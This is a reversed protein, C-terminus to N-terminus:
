RQTAAQKQLNKKIVQGGKMVFVTNELANIDTLPDGAVAIIDAYAGPKIAGILESFRLMEAANITATRIKELPSMGSATYARFSLLSIQGRTMGPIRYYVDAGFAVPVGAKVARRLRERNSEVLSVFGKKTQERQEPTGQDSIAYAELPGDTPVLFIRKEAMLKLVEDTVNYAHEISDVGAEVAIRVAADEIAHAAVPRKARHAEEVIVKVEELSLMRGQEDVIVKVWVAGDYIAQRTARRSEEVGTVVVYEQEVIKQVEPTLRGLQGGIPALARTSVVMRPGVVWGAVIADRLARDGNVGSNGLDRVTTFGAELMQRGLMAGLLARKATSMRSVTALMNASDDGVDEDFDMLLHTHCDILGPLLTVDGLDIVQAGQPVPLRAGVKLVKGNEILVVADAIIKGSVVDLLRAARLATVEARPPAPSTQAPVPLAPSSIILVLFFWTCLWSVLRDSSRTRYGARIKLPNSNKM